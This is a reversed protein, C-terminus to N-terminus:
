VSGGSLGTMSENLVEGTELSGILTWFRDSVWRAVGSSPRLTRKSQSESSTTGYPTHGFVGNPSQVGYMSWVNVGKLEHHGCRGARGPPAATARGRWVPVVERTRPARRQPQPKTPSKPLHHKKWFQNPWTWPFDSGPRNGIPQKLHKLGIPQGLRWDKGNRWEDSWSFLLLANALDM